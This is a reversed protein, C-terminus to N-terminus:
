AFAGVLPVMILLPEVQLKAGLRKFAVQSMSTARLYKPIVLQRAGM